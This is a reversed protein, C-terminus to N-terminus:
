FEDEEEEPFVDPSDIDAQQRELALVRAERLAM